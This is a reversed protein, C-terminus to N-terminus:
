AEANRITNTAKNKSKSIGIDTQINVQLCQQSCLVSNSNSFQKWKVQGKQQPNHVNPTKRKNKNINASDDRYTAKYTHSQSQRSHIINECVINNAHM